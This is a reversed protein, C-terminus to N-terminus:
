FLIGGMVAVSTGDEITIRAQVFPRLRTMTNFRAGALLNLGGDTESEDIADINIYRIGLGAGVYPTFPEAPGGSIDYLANLDFQLLTVDDGVFFYDVGPQIVVPLSALGFRVQAGIFPDEVDVDYGGHIGFQTQARASLTVTGLLVFAFLTKKM